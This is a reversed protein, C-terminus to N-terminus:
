ILTVNTNSKIPLWQYNADENLDNNPVILRLPQGWLSLAHVVNHSKVTSLAVSWTSGSRQEVIKISHCHFLNIALILYILVSRMRRDLMHDNEHRGQLSFDLWTSLLCALVDGSSGSKCFPMLDFVSSSILNLHM